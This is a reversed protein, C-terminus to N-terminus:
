LTSSLIYELVHPRSSLRLIIDTITSSDDQYCVREIYPLATKLGEPGVPELLSVELTRHSSSHGPPM